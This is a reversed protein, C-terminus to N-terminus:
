LDTVRQQKSHGKSIIIDIHGLEQKQWEWAWLVWEVQQLWDTSEQEGGGALFTTTNNSERSSKELSKNIAFTNNEIPYKKISIYKGM